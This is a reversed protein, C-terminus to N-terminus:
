TSIGICPTAILQECLQDITVIIRFAGIIGFDESDHWTLTDFNLNVWEKNRDRTKGSQDVINTLLVNMPGDIVMEIRGIWSKKESNKWFRIEKGEHEEVFNLSMRLGCHAPERTRSVLMRRRNSLM